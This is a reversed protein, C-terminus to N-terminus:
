ATGYPWNRVECFLRAVLLLFAMGVIFAFFRRPRADAKPYESETNSNAQAIGAASVAREIDDEGSLVTVILRADKPLEFPEDLVIRHGDFHAKVNIVSMPNPYPKSQIIEIETSKSCRM